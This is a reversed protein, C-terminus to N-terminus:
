CVHRVSFSLGLWWRVPNAVLASFAVSYDL